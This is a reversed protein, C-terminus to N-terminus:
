LFNYICFIHFSRVVLILTEGVFDWWGSTASSIDSHILIKQLLNQWM